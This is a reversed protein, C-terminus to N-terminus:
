RSSKKASGDSRRTVPRQGEGKWIGLGDDVPEAEEDAVYSFGVNPPTSEELNRPASATRSDARRLPVTARPVSPAPPAASRATRPASARPAEFEDDQSERAYGAEVIEPTPARRRPQMSVQRPQSDALKSVMSELRDFRGQIERIEAERKALEDRLRQETASTCPAPPVCHEPARLDRDNPTQLNRDNTQPVQNFELARGDVWPARSSEVHMEANRRYKVMAPMRLEPLDISIAPLRLGFGRLGYGTSEGAQEGTEPSRVYAGQPATLGRNSAPPNSCNPPCYVPAQCGDASRGTQAICTRGVAALLLVAIAFKKM